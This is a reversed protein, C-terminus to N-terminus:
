KSRQRFLVDETNDFEIKGRGCQCKVCHMLVKKQYKGMYKIPEVMTKGCADCSVWVGPDLVLVIKQVHVFYDKTYFEYCIDSMKPDEKLHEQWIRGIGDIFAERTKLLGEDMKNRLLPGGECWSTPSPTYLAGTARENLDM